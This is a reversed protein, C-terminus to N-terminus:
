AAHVHHVRSICLSDDEHVRPCSSEFDDGFYLLRHRAPVLSGINQVIVGEGILFVCGSDTADM